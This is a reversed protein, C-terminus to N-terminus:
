RGEMGAAGRRAAVREVCDAARSRGEGPEIRSKWYDCRRAVERSGLLSEASKALGQASTKRPCLVRAVGLRVLRNGNDFQDGRMPMVVQPVGAALAYAATGIGGHHIVLSARAFLENFPAHPLYTITRPLNGPVDAAHPTVFVAQRGLTECAAAAREYFPRQSGALTGTTVVVAGAPWADAEGAARPPPYLPFGAVSVYEPWDPQPKAFWEPWMCVVLDPRVNMDRRLGLRDRLRVISEPLAPEAVAVRRGLARRADHVANNLRYLFALGRGSRALWAAWGPLMREPHVPDRRSRAFEQTAPSCAISVLPVGLKEAAFASGLEGGIVVSPGRAAACAVADYFAEVQSAYHDAMVQMADKRTRDFIGADAMLREHDALTGVPEFGLGAEAALRAFYPNGVFTVRHGRRRLEAGVAISPLVDGTSGWRPVVVNMSM